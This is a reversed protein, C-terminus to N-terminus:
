VDSVCGQFFGAGWYTLGLLFLPLSYLFGGIERPRGTALIRLVIRLFKLAVFAPLLLVPVIGRYMWGGCHMRRYILIYKGLMLQNRLYAGLDERFIHYIRISPEFFVGTRQGAALGFLVDESARIEPFGGVDDFLAKECFLNCSPVFTKVRRIGTDLFENFQLFYQALAIMKRKQFDPLSLSGGGVRCGQAFAESIKELWDPAPYADSDIFALYRGSAQQAGLNRGVAPITKESLRVVRVGRGEFASLVAPTRGDDSSDVVIISKAACARQSLLGELTRGVTAASNYSPIVVSIENM